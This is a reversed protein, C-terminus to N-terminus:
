SATEPDPLYNIAKVSVPRSRAGVAPIAYHLPHPKCMKNQVRSFPIANGTGLWGDWFGRQIEQVLNHGVTRARQCRVLNAADARSVHRYPQESYLQNVGLVGIPKSV